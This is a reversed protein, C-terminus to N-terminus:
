HIRKTQGAWARERLVYKQIKGTSTKPLEGFEVGKPCKFHALRTRCFAVIEDGSVAAGERLTVYAWPVEGWTADPAGIVAAELVAPHEAIAKEVEQTSVNEGGSIVIDKMRDMLEIYGDPHWVALDGTHFWGGAFAAETAAPDRYYGLMLGNGRMRVEGITRGDRPVDAGTEPDAVRVEGLGVYPVGQRARLAAREEAPRGDWESHWACITFPGYSETLGYVHTIRAGLGEMTRIIRPSPPAAATVIHLPQGFRAGTREMEAALGILVTPAGCLHTVGEDAVLRLVEAPAPRPLLVHTAGAGTVAWPMCWGNCHFMPLTWLYVSEPRLGLEVIEAMANLFAGRHHYLVGKPQGTTGSTYNISIPGREDVDPLPERGEAVGAIFAEYDLVVERLEPLGACEAAVERWLGPDAILLRAGAHELIQRVERGNLRTNIAVLLAGALPVGFHAELIPPSNPCLVAVRDGDGVGAARLARALRHVRARLAAYDYRAEGSVVALREPYVDATRELLTLPTLPEYSPGRVRAGGESGPHPNAPAEAGPLKAGCAPCAVQSLARERLVLTAEATGRQLGGQWGRRGGAAFAAAGTAAAAAAATLWGELAWM